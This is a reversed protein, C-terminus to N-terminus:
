RLLKQFLYNIIGFLFVAGLYTGLGVIELSVSNFALFDVILEALYLILANLVITFLGVTLFLFPLSLIKLIPKLFLNLFGIVVGTLVYGFTGGTVQFGELLQTVLYVAATNLALFTLFAQAMCFSSGPLTPDVVLLQLGGISLTSPSDKFPFIM